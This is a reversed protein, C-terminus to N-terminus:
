LAAGAIHGGMSIGSIFFRRPAPLVQGREAAIQTFALALANTDEVGARM